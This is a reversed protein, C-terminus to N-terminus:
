QKFRYVAFSLFIAYVSLPLIQYWYTSPKLSENNHDESFSWDLDWSGNTVSGADLLTLFSSSTNIWIFAIITLWVATLAYPALARYKASAIFFLAQNFIGVSIIINQYTFYPTNFYIFLMPHKVGLFHGLGILIFLIAGIYLAVSLLNQKM